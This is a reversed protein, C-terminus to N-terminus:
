RFRIKTAHSHTSPVLPSVALVQHSAPPSQSGAKKKPSTVFDNFQRHTSGALVESDLLQFSVDITVQQLDLKGIDDRRDPFLWGFYCVAYSM